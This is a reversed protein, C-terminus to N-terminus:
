NAIAEMMDLLRTTTNWNRITMNQYVPTGIIRTMHSQAAKSTLRSFYLVGNGAYVQDVGEKAPASKMAEASSLPEKLFIIDYRYNAPDRGFGAPALTVIDKLEEHSRVVVRSNYNFTRSLAEEITSTLRTRDPQDAGFIVNGSQIYTRVNTYGLAEFAAALEGMKILNNGGVNIGRLLTVYLDMPGEGECGHGEGRGLRGVPHEPVDARYLLRSRDATPPIANAAPRALSAAQREDENQAPAGPLPRAGKIDARNQAM